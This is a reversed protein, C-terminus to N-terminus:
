FCRFVGILKNILTCRGQVGHYKKRKENKRLRQSQLKFLDRNAPQSTFYKNAMPSHLVLSDFCANPM